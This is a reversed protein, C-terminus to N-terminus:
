PKLCCDVTDNTRVQDTKFALTKDSLICQRLKDLQGTFAYNCVEVNSVTGEMRVCVILVTILLVTLM